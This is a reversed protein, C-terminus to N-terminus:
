CDKWRGSHPAASGAGGKRSGFYTHPDGEQHCLCGTEQYRGVTVGTHACVRTFLLILSQAPSCAHPM